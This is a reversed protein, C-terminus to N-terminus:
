AGSHMCPAHVGAPVRRRRQQQLPLGGAWAAPRSDPVCGNANQPALEAIKKEYTDDLAASVGASPRLARAAGGGAPAPSASRLSARQEVYEQLEVQQQEVGPFPRMTVLLLTHHSRKPHHCRCECRRRRSERPPPPGGGDQEYQRLIRALRAARPDDGPKKPAACTRVLRRSAPRCTPPALGGRSLGAAQQM